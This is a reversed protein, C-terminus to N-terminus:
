NNKLTYRTSRAKGKMELINEEVMEKLIERTRSRKLDILNEIETSTASGNESIYLIIKKHNENMDDVITRDLKTDDVITRDLKTDDVITRDGVLPRYFRVKLFSTEIVEPKKLGYKECENFIKCFGSGWQEIFKTEKFIRAIIPNRVESCGTGLNDINITNPLSGPSTIELLSDSISVKIDSGLISYDRHVVANILAERLAIFPIEYSDKRQLGEIKGSLNLHSKLFKEAMIIQEFITGEIEKQDIFEVADNGKFRACRIKYNKLGLLAILANTPYKKGNKSKILKLNELVNETFKKGTLKELQTLIANLDLEEIKFEMNIDEDYAINEGELMLRRVANSDGKKNVNDIRLYTGNNIGEKKLFYPKKSGPYIRIILIIKGDINQTFIEPSIQPECSDAITNVILERLKPIEDPDLGIIENLGDKVGMIIKGGATNSFAVATKAIQNNQPMQEKFELTKGEGKEIDNLIQM